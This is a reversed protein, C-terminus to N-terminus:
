GLFYVTCSRFGFAMCEEYTPFYLDMRDRKIAGGCDEAVALGYVYEGDNSVIFMRTGYPIFRPDVAVTGVRVQTGTATIRDCGADTHTYATARVTDTRTYTLVEGTPLRIFGEGIVLEGEPATKMEPAGTGRAVIQEVPAITMRSATVQRSVETGNRYSVRASCLLEGDRGRVLVQEEGEPLSPDGCYRVSFPVAATYTEERTLCSDVRLVMGDFVPEEPRHSLVDGEGVALGLRDLLGAATEEGSSALIEEGHYRVTVRNEREGGPIARTGAMVPRALLALVATLVAFCWIRGGRGGPRVYKGM